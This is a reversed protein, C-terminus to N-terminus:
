LKRAFDVISEWPSPKMQPNNIRPYKGWALPGGHYGQVFATNFAAGDDRHSTPFYASSYIYTLLYGDDTKQMTSQMMNKLGWTRQYVIPTYHNYFDDIVERSKSVIRKHVKYVEQKFEESNIVIPKIDIFDSAVM